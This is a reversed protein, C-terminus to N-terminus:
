KSTHRAMSRSRRLLADVPTPEMQLPLTGLLM